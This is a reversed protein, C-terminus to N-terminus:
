LLLRLLEKDKEADRLWDVESNKRKLIADVVDNVNMNSVDVQFV